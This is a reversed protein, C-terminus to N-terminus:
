PRWPARAHRLSVRRDISRGLRRRQGRQDRRVHRGIGDERSWYDNILPAVENRMFTRVEKLFARDRDALV